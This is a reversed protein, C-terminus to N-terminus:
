FLAATLERRARAVAPDEPPFLEFLELLRTRAQEREAGATRGVTAVLRAFAEDPRGALLQVDAAACQAAVDSPAADAAAVAGAQDPLQEVRRLLGVQALGARAVPDAPDSDARRRYAREAADLDGRQLAEDAEVIEAPLAPPQAGADSQSAPTGGGGGLVQAAAQLVADIWQRVQGEPLAGMFGEVLQGGIVAVVTPISQVGFQGALRQNADVDIKALVWAGGGEAALRELVPSLQKCPGCWSAWFDIVVPVQRSREVVEAAFSAETVEIVNAGTAQTADSPNAPRRALTSLDVAGALAAGSLTPNGPQM